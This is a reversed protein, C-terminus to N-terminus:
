RHPHCRPESPREVSVLRELEINKNSLGNKCQVKLESLMKEKDDPFHTDQSLDM